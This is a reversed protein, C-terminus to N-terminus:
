IATEIEAYKGETPDKRAKDNGPGGFIEDLFGDDAIFRDDGEAGLMTDNGEGGDLTDNGANGFLKDNGKGGFLSDNQNGGYLEDDGGFGYLKDNSSEGYLTDNGTGNEDDDGYIFDVGHGGHLNDSGGRGYLRDKGEGGEAYDYGGGGRIRDDGAMGYMYNKGAGGLISDNGSGTQISDNGSDGVVSMNKTVAASTTLKDDGGKLSIYITSFDALKQREELGNLNMVLEDGKVTIDLVDAGETANVTLVNTVPDIYSYPTPVFYLDYDGPQDMNRAEYFFGGSGALVASVLQKTQNNSDLYSPLGGVEEVADNTPSTRYLKRSGWRADDKTPAAVFYYSSLVGAGIDVPYLTQETTIKTVTDADTSYRYLERDPTGQSSIFDTDGATFYIHKGVVSIGRPIGGGNSTPMATVNNIAGTSTRVRYLQHGRANPSTNYYGGSFYVFDGFEASSNDAFSFDDAIKVPAANGGDSRWLSTNNDKSGEFYIHENSVFVDSNGVFLDGTIKYTGSAKGNTRWLGQDGNAYFLQGKAQYWKVMPTDVVLQSKNQASLTMIQTHTSDYLYLQNGIAMVETYFASADSTVQTYGGKATNLQFLQRGGGAGGTATFFVRGDTTATLNELSNITSGPKRLDLLMKTSATPGKTSWIQTWGGGSAHSSTVYVTGGVDLMENDPGGSDVAKISNAAMMQRKEFAEFSVANNLSRSARRNRLTQM